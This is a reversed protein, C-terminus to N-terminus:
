ARSMGYWNLSSVNIAADARKYVVSDSSVAMLFLKLHTLINLESSVEFISDVQPEDENRLM